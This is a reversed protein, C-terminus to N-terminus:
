LWDQAKLMQKMRDVSDTTVLPELTTREVGPQTTDRDVDWESDFAVVAERAELYSDLADMATKVLPKRQVRRVEDLKIVAEARRAQLEQLAQQLSVRAVKLEPLHWGTQTGRAIDLRQQAEDIEEDTAAPSNPRPNLVRLLRAEDAALTEVLAGKKRMIEIAAKVQEDELVPTGDTTAIGFM